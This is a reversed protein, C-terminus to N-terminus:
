VKPLSLFIYFSQFYCLLCLFEELNSLFKKYQYPCQVFQTCIHNILNSWTYNATTENRLALARVCTKTHSARACVGSPNGSRTYFKVWDSQYFHCALRFDYIHSIYRTQNRLLNMATIKAHHHRMIFHQCLIVNKGILEKEMGSCCVEIPKTQCLANIIQWLHM